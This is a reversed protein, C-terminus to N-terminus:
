ASRIMLFSRHSNRHIWSISCQAHHFTMFMKEMQHRPSCASHCKVLLRLQCWRLTLNVAVQYASCTVNQVCCDVKLIAMDICFEVGLGNVFMLIEDNVTEVGEM